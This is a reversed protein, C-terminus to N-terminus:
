HFIRRLDQQPKRWIGIQVLKWIAFNSM